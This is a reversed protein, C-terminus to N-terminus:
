LNANPNKRASLLLDKIDSPIQYIIYTIHINSFKLKSTTTVVKDIDKLIRYLM